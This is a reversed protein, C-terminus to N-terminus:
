SNVRAPQPVSPPKTPTEDEAVANPESANGQMLAALKHRAQKLAIDRAARYTPRALTDTLDVHTSSNIPKDLLVFKLSELLTSSVMNAAVVTQAFYEIKGELRMLLADMMEVPLNRLGVLKMALQMYPLNADKANVRGNLLATEPKRYDFVDLLVRSGLDTGLLVPIGKQMAIQNLKLVLKLDDLACVLVDCGDVFDAVNDDTLPPRVDVEAFPNIRLMQYANHEAKNEGVDFLDVQQRNVNSPDYHDPDSVRLHEFGYRALALVLNGGVTGQGAVAVRAKRLTQQEQHDTLPYNRSTLTQYFSEHRPLALTRGTRRDSFVAGIADHELGFPNAFTADALADAWRSRPLRRIAPQPTPDVAAAMAEASIWYISAFDQPQIEDVLARLEVDSIGSTELFNPAAVAPVEAAVVPFFYEPYSMTYRLATPDERRLRLDNFKTYHVGLKEVRHFMYRNGISVILDVDWDRGISVAGRFLLRIAEDRNDLQPDLAMRSLEAVVEHAQETLAQELYHSFHGGTNYLLEMESALAPFRPSALLSIRLTAVMREDDMVIITHARLSGDELTETDLPDAYREAPINNYLRRYAISRLQYAAQKQEDTEAIQWRMTM